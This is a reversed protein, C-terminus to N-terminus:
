EAGGVATASRERDMRNQQSRAAAALAAGATRWAEAAALQQASAIPRYPDVPPVPRIFPAEFMDSRVHGWLQVHILLRGLRLHFM